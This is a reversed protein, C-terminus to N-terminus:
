GSMGLLTRQEDWGLPLPGMRILRDANLDPPHHGRAIREVIDPALFALYIVRTVYSSTVQAEQAIALVGNCRGSTLRGFWDHAKTLLGLLKPDPGRAVTAEPARVVLRVAMGCRKLEVPVEILVAPADEVEGSGWIGEIRVAIEVRGAHATIRAICRQLTDIKRAAEPAYLLDAVDAATRLRRQVEDAGIGESLELLRAEDQLFRGLAQLVADELERAPWRLTQANKRGEAQIPPGVYYRYRRSGKKAHSPTLRRGESDFVLGALLSPDTANSRTRQGQSNEQLREQVAQWLSTEM